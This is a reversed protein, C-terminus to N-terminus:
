KQRWKNKISESLLFSINQLYNDTFFKAETQLIDGNQLVIRCVPNNSILYSNEAKVDMYVTKGFINFHLKELTDVKVSNMNKNM